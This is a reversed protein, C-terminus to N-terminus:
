ALVDKVAKIVSDPVQTYKKLWEPYTELLISDPHEAYVVVRSTTKSGSQIRCNYDKTLKNIAKIKETKGFSNTVKDQLKSLSFNEPWVVRLRDPTIKNRLMISDNGFFDDEDFKDSSLIEFALVAGQSGGREEAFQKAWEFSPIAFVALEGQGYMPNDKPIGKSEWRNVRPALGYKFIAILNKKSTGHYVTDGAQVSAKRLYAKIKLKM